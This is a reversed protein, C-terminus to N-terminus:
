SSWIPSRWARGSRWHPHWPTRRACRFRAMWRWIHRRTIGGMSRMRLPGCTTFGWNTGTPWAAFSSRSGRGVQSQPPPFLGHENVFEESSVFTLLMAFVYGPLILWALPLDFILKAVGLAIGFGVGVSVANILTKKKFVGNTLKETTIGLANLAPEALTAGFGLFWAFVLALSLGVAYVYLPSAEYGAVEMFAIPM